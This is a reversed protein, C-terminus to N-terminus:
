LFKTSLYARLTTLRMFSWSTQCFSSIYRSGCNVQLYIENKISNQDTLKADAVQNGLKGILVTFFQFDPSRGVCIRSDM